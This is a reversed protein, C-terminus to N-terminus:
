HQASALVAYTRAAIEGLAGLATGLEPPQPQGPDPIPVNFSVFGAFLTLRGDPLVLYGALARAANNGSAGLPQQSFGGGTKAHVHGAAPSGAQVPALDGDIGLVPFANMYPRFYPQVAMYGLFTDFYSSTQAAAPDLGAASLLGDQFQGGVAAADDPSHGAIAGVLYPFTVVHLNSSVKMMPEVELGVPPSVHEAVKNGRTYLRSLATFDPDALLDASARVGADRLATALAAQAFRAPGPVWYSRWVPGAALPITGTLEVTRTGDANAVDGAFRLDTTGSATTTVTGTVNVYGTQPSVDVVAPAGASSGPTVTVDVINDNIMMPSIPVTATGINEATERFLSTDVLINGDIRDIGSAAVQAAIQRIEQLPDGGIPVSGGAPSSYTHDPLPLRLTGDPRLRGSLLLDGSAVLVLDGRLVGGAVPGTRYAPTRFRYGAGLASFATGETFVKGASAAIVPQSANLQYLAEKEGPVRFEVAWRADRLPTDQIVERVADAIEGRPVGPQGGARGQRAGTGVAGLLPVSGILGVASRRSLM